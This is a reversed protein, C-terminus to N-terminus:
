LKRYHKKIIDSGKEGIMITAANTNVSVIKSMVSSDIVRLGTTGKVKLLPDVVATHDDISGMKCTGVAHYFPVAVNEIVCLWYNRSGWIHQLCKPLKFEELVLGADIMPKTKSIKEVFEIGKLMAEIEGEHSLFTAYILPDDTSDRTKLMVRGTSTPQVIIPVMVIIDSHLNLHDFLMTVEKSYGFMNSLLNKKNPSSHQTANYPVRFKIIQLDPYELEKKSKWFTMLKSLGITSVGKELLSTEKKILDISEKFIDEKPRGKRDTFVLSPISMHDQLNYGVPLDEIVHIGLDNLHNKPGIGSVMLIQPSKISGASLIVEKTCYVSRLEKSPTLFEVGIAKKGEFIILTVFINKAVFLNTRNSAPLLFAKLTSCRRGNRTTSDFNGYGVVPQKRNFDDVLTLNMSREAEAIIDYAPDFTEIRSVTLPGGQGHIKLNCKCIDVFDESKKFYPLVDDYGWGSCGNNNWNNFDQETGRLYIMANISSSGGLLQGGSVICREDEM